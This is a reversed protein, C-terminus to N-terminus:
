IARYRKGRFEITEAAAADGQPQSRSAMRSLISEVTVPASERAQRVGPADDPIGNAERYAACWTAHYAAGNATAFPGHGAIDCTLLPSTSRPM